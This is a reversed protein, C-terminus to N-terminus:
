SGQRGTAFSRKYEAAKSLRNLIAHRRRSQAFSRLSVGLPALLSIPLAVPVPVGFRTLIWLIPAASAFLFVIAWFPLFPKGASDVMSEAEEPTFTNASPVLPRADFAHRVAAMAQTYGESESQWITFRTPTFRVTEVRGDERELALGMQTVKGDSSAFPSVFAGTVDYYSPYVATLDTWAVFPRRWRMLLPRSPAIGHQHIRIDSPFTLVLWALSLLVPAAYVLYLVSRNERALNELSGTVFVVSFLLLGAYIIPHARPPRYEFLLRGREM